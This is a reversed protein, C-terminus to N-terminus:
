YKDKELEVEIPESMLSIISSKLYCKNLKLNNMGKKQQFHFLGQSLGSGLVSINM